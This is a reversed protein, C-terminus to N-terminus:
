VTAFLVTEEAHITYHDLHFRYEPVLTALYDAIAFFDRPHHYLSIALKPRCRRILGAGGRLAALEHGEIDMKIFDVRGGGLAAFYMDLRLIRLAGEADDLRFNPRAQGEDAGRGPHDPQHDTDGVGAQVLTVRDGLGNQALNLAAVAAHQPLPDFAHVHGVPGVAAAFQVATEGFCAGADVCIDGTEPGIRIGDRRYFYQAKFFAYVINESWCDVAVSGAMAPVGGHHRIPGFVGALAIGSTGTAHARAQDILRAETSWSQGPQVRIRRHGLVRYAMLRLLLARSGADRLRAHLRQYAAMHRLFFGLTRLRGLGARLGGAPETLFRARDWNNDLRRIANGALLRLFQGFFAVFPSVM